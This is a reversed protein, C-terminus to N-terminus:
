IKEAQPNCPMGMDLMGEEEVETCSSHINVLCGDDDPCSQM